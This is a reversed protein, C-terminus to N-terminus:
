RGYALPPIIGSPDETNTGVNTLALTEGERRGFGTGVLRTVSWGSVVMGNTVVLTGIVICDARELPATAIDHRNSEQQWAM